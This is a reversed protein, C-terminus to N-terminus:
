ITRLLSADSRPISRLGSLLLRRIPAAEGSDSGRDPYRTHHLKWGVSEILPCERDASMAANGTAFRIRRVGSRNSGVPFGQGRQRARRTGGGDCAATMCSMNCHCACADRRPSPHATRARRRVPQASEKGGLERRAAGGIHHTLFLRISGAPSIGAESLPVLRGVPFRAKPEHLYRCSNLTPVLSPRATVCTFRNLRTITTVRLGVADYRSSPLLLDGCSAITVPSQPPTLSCPVNPFPLMSSGSLDVTTEARLPFSRLISSSHLM